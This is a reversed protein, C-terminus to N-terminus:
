VDFNVATVSSITARPPQEPLAALVVVGVVDAALLPSVAALVAAIAVGLALALVLATLTCPTGAVVTVAPLL